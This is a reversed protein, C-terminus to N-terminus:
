DIAGDLHDHGFWLGSGDWCARGRFCDPDQLSHLRSVAHKKQLHLTRQEDTAIAYGILLQQASLFPIAGHGHQHRHAVLARIATTQRCCAEYPLPSCARPSGRSM